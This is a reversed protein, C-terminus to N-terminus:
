NARRNKIMSMVLAMSSFWNTDKLFYFILPFTSSNIVIQVVSLKIDNNLVVHFDPSIIKKIPPLNLMAWFRLTAKLHEFIYYIQIGM